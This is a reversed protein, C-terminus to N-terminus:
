LNKEFDEIDEFKRITPVLADMNGHVSISGNLDQAVIFDGNSREPYMPKYEMYYGTVTQSFYLDDDCINEDVEKLKSHVRKKFEKAGIINRMTNEGEMIQNFQTEITKIRAM